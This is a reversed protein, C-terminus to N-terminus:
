FAFLFVLIGVIAYIGKDIMIFYGIAIHSLGMLFHGGIFLFRRSFAKAAYLSCCSSLFNIVGIIYTGKRPTIPGGIDKLITNSYLMIGNIATLEHLSMIFLSVASGSRYARSCFADKVTITATQKQVNKFMHKVIEEQDDPNNARSYIKGIELMAEPKKSSLLLFKPTDRTFYTYQILLQLLYFLIPLGFIINTVHTTKLASTDDDPPLFIAFMYAFLTAAAFSLCYLGAYFGVLNLPVTEEMIRPMAIAIIGVSFGYLLRGAIICAYNEWVTIATGIIGLYASILLANRRGRQVLKGACGAGIM